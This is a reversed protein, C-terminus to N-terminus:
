GKEAPRDDQLLLRLRRMGRKLLGGVAARTAGTHRSICEVSCGHLHKLEVATREKEPLQALADALRQMRERNLVRESPSSQDAALAEEWHRSSEDLSVEGLPNDRVEQLLENRLIARLWGRWEEDTTGRFQGGKEHAKLLTRQVVDSLDLPRQMGPRWLARALLRLYSRASEVSRPM